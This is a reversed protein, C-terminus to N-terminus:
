NLRLLLLVVVMGAVVVKPKSQLITGNFFLKKEMEIWIETHTREM